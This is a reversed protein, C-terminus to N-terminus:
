GCPTVSCDEDDGPRDVGPDGLIGPREPDDPSVDPEDPPPAPAMGPPEPPPDSPPAPPPPPNENPGLPSPPEGIPRLPPFDEVPSGSLAESMVKQWVDGPLSSGQIPRGRATRIPSNMDTGMWVATALSPTFGAMWADNNEGEFRSQVTGTKAAVPRQGPLALRDHEAVELMAEVVNRAVREPFRREGETAAQYLVRDDATVVSSVLHPQRWVGGAAITAYASALELTSVEKNGLAIGETPDDLPATIGAARAAAAVADPGVEKALTHFVVNNSVTMAQKLDCEDCDAGEANRLGPIERGDFVEGLGVPPNRLLGALVVFPKFTSGALKRVQAYDLGLGNDGGYYALVGGTRPDIAVVASRLNVPQGDLADHAAEVVQQQRRPDVTTTIRLGEQAVDQETFGLDELEATVASVIHGRSDTPVGRALARRADTRPFHAAARDAPTLWGQSVMGDLVFSWREVARDPSVAPDWRSPSQILGALLAGETATLDQVNKDFYSQAASQIGYAGRGFYITNLYDALIEDKTREQSIKVALIVEKYKRWLTQEDGVLAKKVFQQTITSGGGEGGRLQNWAARMIGTLDFGPNSYFSRDEAALVAHRVHLPVQDIPVKTRNGEEPVLRTLPSGDAFSVVTVQNNVAEDPNPVSFALYGATFALVPGLVAAAAVGLLARRLLRVRRAHRQQQPSQRRARAPAGVAPLEDTAEPARHRATDEGARAPAQGASGNRQARNRQPKPPQWWAVGSPHADRRSRQTPLGAGRVGAGTSRTSHRPHAGHM